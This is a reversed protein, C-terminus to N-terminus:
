IRRRSSRPLPRRNLMKENSLDSFNTTRNIQQSQDRDREWRDVRFSSDDPWESNSNSLKNESSSATIAKPVRLSIATLPRKTTSVKDEIKMQSVRHTNLWDEEEEEEEFFWDIKDEVWRGMDTLGSRNNEKRRQGPRNGSVGDVFQRGTEVWKDMRRELPERTRQRRQQAYRNREM